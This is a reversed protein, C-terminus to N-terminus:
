GYQVDLANFCRFDAADAEVVDSSALEEFIGHRVLNGDAVEAVAKIEDLDRGM